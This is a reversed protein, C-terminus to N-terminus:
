AIRSPAAVEGATTAERRRELFALYEARVRAACGACIGDTFRLRWGSWSVVGAFLPYGFYRSHWACRSVLVPV